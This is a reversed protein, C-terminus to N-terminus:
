RENSAIRKERYFASKASTETFYQKEKETFGYKLNYVTVKYSGAKDVELFVEHEKGVFRKIGFTM